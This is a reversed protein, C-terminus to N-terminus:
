VTRNIAEIISLSGTCEWKQKVVDKIHWKMNLITTIMEVSAMPKYTIISVPILSNQINKNRYEQGEGYM